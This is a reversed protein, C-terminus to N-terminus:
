QGVGLDTSKIERIEQGWYMNYKHFGTNSWGGTTPAQETKETGGAPARGHSVRYSYIQAKLVQSFVAEAIKQEWRAKAKVSNGIRM